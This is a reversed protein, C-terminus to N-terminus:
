LYFSKLNRSAFTEVRNRNRRKKLFLGRIVLRFIEILLLWQQGNLQEVMAEM